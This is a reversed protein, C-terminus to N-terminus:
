KILMMRKSDKFDGATITYFYVGSSLDSANFTVNHDGAQQVGDVITKVKNGLMDYVILKVDTMKMLHYNIQTTPNFPNPFNQSLKFDTIMKQNSEIGTILYGMNYATLSALQMCLLLTKRPPNYNNFVCIEAGGAIEGSINILFAYSAVQVGDSIRYKILNEGTGGQDFVWIFATDTALLSDFALGYKATLTSSITKKVVNATDVCTMATAFDSVWFGHRGPDYSIGRVTPSVSFQTLLAYSTDMRYIATAAKGGYLYRGDTTLDRVTGTYTVTRYNAPGGGPGTTDMIYATTNSFVNSYYKGMLYQFSVVVNAGIPTNPTYVNFITPYPFGAPPATDSQLTGPVIMSNVTSNPVDTKHNDGAINYFGYILFLSALISVFYLNKKM